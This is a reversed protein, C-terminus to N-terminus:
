AVGDACSARCFAFRLASRLAGAIGVVIKVVASGLPDAGYTNLSILQACLDGVVLRSAPRAFGRAYESKYVYIM